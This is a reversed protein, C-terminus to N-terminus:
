FTGKGLFYCPRTYKIFHFACNIPLHRGGKNIKKRLFLYTSFFFYYDYCKWCWLFPKFKELDCQLTQYVSCWPTIQFSKSEFTVKLCNPSIFCIPVTYFSILIMIQFIFLFRISGRYKGPFLTKWTLAYKGTHFNNEM